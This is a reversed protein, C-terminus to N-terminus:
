PVTIQTWTPALITGANIYINGTSSNVILTGPLAGRLTATVGVTTVAMALTPATGILNNASVNVAPVALVGNQNAFTITYTGIGASGTGVAGTVGAPGINSLANLATAINTALTADTATWSIQGTTQGAFYLTFGGGTPTGGITLTQVCSTGASPVGSVFYDGAGQPTNGPFMNAGNVVPAYGLALSPM